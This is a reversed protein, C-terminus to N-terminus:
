ERHFACADPERAYRKWRAAPQGSVRVPSGEGLGHSWPRYPTLLRAMGSTKSEEDAWAFGRGDDNGLLNELIELAEGLKMMMPAAFQPRLFLNRVVRRVWGTSSYIEDGFPVPLPVDLVRSIRPLGDRMARSDLLVKPRNLSAPVFEELGEEITKRKGFEIQEEFTTVAESPTVEHLRVELVADGPHPERVEVVRDSHTFFRRAPALYSAVEEAFEGQPRGDGPLLVQPRPSTPVIRLGLEEIEIDRILERNESAVSGNDTAVTIQGSREQPKKEDPKM